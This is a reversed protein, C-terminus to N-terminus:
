DASSAVPTPTDFASQQAERIERVTERFATITMPLAVRKRLETIGFGTYRRLTKGLAGGDPFDLQGAISDLTHGPQELLASAVLVRCWTLISAEWRRAAPIVPPGSLLVTSFAGVLLVLATLHGWVALLLLGRM